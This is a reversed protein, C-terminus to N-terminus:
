DIINLQKNEIMYIAKRYQSKTSWKNQIQIYIAEKTQFRQKKM